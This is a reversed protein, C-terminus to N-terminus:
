GNKIRHKYNFLTSDAQNKLQTGILIKKGDVLELQIGIDGKVNFAIGKSKNWLAGGKIGWGGYEGLPDYTRTYAQKIEHWEIVRHKLHFPFFKYHIGKEDIRTSLNFMFILSPALIVVSIIILIETLSMKDADKLIFVLPIITSIVLLIILWLQTFKQNEKFIKM